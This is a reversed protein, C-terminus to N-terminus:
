FNFNTAIMYSFGTMYSYKNPFRSPHLPDQRLQEYGGTIIYRNHLLNNLYASLSLYYKKMIRFSKSFSAHVLVYSPLQEQAILDLVLAQEDQQFKSIAEATRRNPSPELYLKDFYNLCIGASWFKRGTYRYGLASVWQPSGGLKYHNLYVPRNHFLPHHTDDQWAQLRPQGSYYSQAFGALAQLSHASAIIKELALEFGRHVQNIRTMLLNIRAAHDDDYYTRLWTRHNLRTHYVCAKIKLHPYRATYSLDSSFIEENIRDDAVDRRIQPSIFLASTGPPRTLINLNASIFHRGSLHYISGAKLGHNLFRMKESEGLSTEPFKGNAMHGTRWISNGGLSMGGYVDFKRYRYEAMVWASSQRIYISYDYGFTEGTYLKQDPQHLNNQQVLSGQEQVFPDIDLWYAAGLLDELEKFKRNRYVTGNLGLRLRLHEQRIQYVTSFGTQRLDEVRNEVIYRARTETTNVPSSGPSYLNDRNLAILKDWNIQRTHVDQQWNLLAQDGGAMDGNQYFYGPLYQYYDPRPDPAQQFNLGSVGARGRTHFLSTTLRRDDKPTYLHSLIFVPRQSRRVSANRVRGNQYGWLSNYSPDGTIEYAEMVSSSSLGQEVPAAFGTISILHRANWQKDLSMYFSQGRFHTGPINLANGHRISAAASFAWGNKMLGSAHTLMLRHRFIRNATAYSLRTGKRFSSARANIHTYGGPGSFLYHDANNGFRNEVFRTVDNLGGWSAWSAIGTEPSNVPIGNILVQHLDSAYGRLRYRATGFYFGSFQVFLDKSAQLLSAVDQDDLTSEADNGSLGFVPVSSFPASSDALVPVPAPRPDAQSFCGSALLLLCFPTLFGKSM